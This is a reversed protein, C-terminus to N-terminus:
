AVGGRHTEAQYVVEGGVITIEPPIDKLMRPDATLPNSGLVILDARKGPEITGKTSEEFGISAGNVTYLTLAEFPTLRREADPHNVVAHIGLMPGMEGADADSGGAVLIGSDVIKRYPHRRKYREVGVFRASALQYDDSAGTDLTLAFNPQMALAVGLRAVREVHDATPLSFHEIRHRHDSRPHRALAREYATLLQEIAADGIAHMSIQLGALHAREVYANLEDDSFYLVGQTSPDDAYPQMLAATHEGWAGDVYLCGGIRPLHWEVAQPVDTSQFYVVTRIPLRDREQLLVEVDREPLWGHRDASGGELAHVTTIGFRTTFQAARHLAEVRTSDEVFGYFRYRAVNNALAVLMGTPRGTRDRRIGVLDEPLDLARWALTNVICAHGGIDGIMVRHHPAVRDLDPGTVPRDMMGADYGHLLIVRDPETGAAADSIAALVQDASTGGYVSPGVLGLGMQMFHVHTDIFGPLVTRGGLSQVRTGLGVLRRIEENSGVAVIKGADIALAQADTRATPRTMTIVEADLLVTDAIM